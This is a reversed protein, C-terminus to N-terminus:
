VLVLFDKSKTIDRGHRRYMRKDHGLPMNPAGMFQPVRVGRQGALQKRRSSFYRLIQTDRLAAVAQDCVDARVPPLAHLVQMQMHDPPSLQLPFM